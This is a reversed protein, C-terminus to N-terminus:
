GAGMPPADVSNAVRGASEGVQIPLILPEFSLLLKAVHRDALNPGRGTGHVPPPRPSRFRGGGTFAGIFLGAGSGTVVPPRGTLVKRKYEV